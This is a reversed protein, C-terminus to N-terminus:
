DNIKHNMLLEYTYKKHATKVLFSIKSLKLNEQYDEVTKEITYTGYEKYFPAIDNNVRTEHILETIRRQIIYKKVPPDGDIINMYVMTATLICISIIVMAIVSEAISSATLSYKTFRM